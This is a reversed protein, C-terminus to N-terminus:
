INFHQKLKNIMDCVRQLDERAEGQEVQTEKYDAVARKKKLFRFSNVVDRSLALDEIIHGRLEKLITNHSGQANTKADQEAYPCFGQSNLIYMMYQFLAYYSCHVSSNYYGQSILVKAACINEESKKNM